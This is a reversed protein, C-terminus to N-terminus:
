GPINKYVDTGIRESHGMKGFVRGDKSTLGEVAYVSGNPNFSGDLSAKGSLDVYQTAIQGNKILEELQNPNCVFRGEGHSVPMTYIEGLKVNSLWPSLKSSIRTDVLNSVHRGIQNFTLTPDDEGLEMIEGYPLLGLKILAQFGNCVGLILGDRNNLLDEIAEAIYPNRFITAIFKGSGDPEDGASFGGPIM